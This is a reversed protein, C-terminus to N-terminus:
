TGSCWSTRVRTPRRTPSPWGPGYRRRPRRSRSPTRATSPGSSRRVRHRTVEAPLGAPDCDLAVDVVRVPVDQARALVAVPATGDLVARVLAAAGGAPRRSVGAAAVGHDGAFLVVRPQRVPAAPVASRAASLWEGLADLRGLAGQPVTLRARREEAARRVTGDPREILDSFDDLDIGSM